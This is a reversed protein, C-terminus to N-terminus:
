LGLLCPQSLEVGFRKLIAGSKTDFCSAIEGGAQRFYVAKKLGEEVAQGSTLGRENAYKQVDETINVREIGTMDAKRGARKIDSSKGDAGNMSIRMMTERWRIEWHRESKRQRNGCEGGDDLTFRTM